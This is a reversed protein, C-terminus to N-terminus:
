RPMWNWASDIRVSCPNSRTWSSTPSRSRRHGGQVHDDDVVVVGVRPIEDVQDGGDGAGARPRAARGPTRPRPARGNAHRATARGPGGRRARRSRPRGRPAARRSGAPARRRGRCAPGRSPTRRFPPARRVRERRPPSSRARRALRRRPAAALSRRRASGSARPPRPAQRGPPRPWPPGPRSPRAADCGAAPPRATGGPTSGRPARRASSRWSGPPDHALGVRNGEELLDRGRMGAAEPEVAAAGPLPGAPARDDAPELFGVEGQGVVRGSALHGPVDAAAGLHDAVVHEGRQLRLEGGALGRLLPEAVEAVGGPGVEGGCGARHGVRDPHPGSVDPHEIM